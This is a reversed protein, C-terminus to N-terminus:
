FLVHTAILDCVQHLIKESQRMNRQQGSCDPFLRCLPASLRVWLLIDGEEPFYEFTDGQLAGATKIEVVACVSPSGGCIFILEKDPYPGRGGSSNFQIYGKPRRDEYLVETMHALPNLIFTDLWVTFAIENTPAPTRKFLAVHEPGALSSRLEKVRQQTDYSCLDLATTARKSSHFDGRAITWDTGVSRAAKEVIGIDTTTPVKSSRSATYAFPVGPRVPAALDIFYSSLAM